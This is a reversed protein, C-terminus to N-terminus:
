LDRGARKHVWWLYSRAGITMFPEPYLRRPPKCALLADIMPNGSGAAHEAILMGSLTGKVIGLGNQCVASYLGQEIEGFGPVSNLSLCLEGGWRFEMGVGDLMPFRARFSKDHRRGIAKIENESTRSNPNYTFTNRIVIRGERIRRVSTGMPDAPVLAWEPAGGLTAREGAGLERTMSAFTFVHMLRRRYFGFSEAHGNVTLIVRPSRVSGNRTEVRHGSGTEIRTVPSNEFIDVKDALGGALGRVYAAPQIIAAGPAHMGGVYYDTGTLAQMDRADLMTYPEGLADLHSAFGTLATMGSDGAAGHYKGCDSFVNELGYEDVAQRAFEIAARNLAIEQLDHERGGAYSESSLDHPLDIMFGSNRGAAGWGVRQADILVIREGARLQVLRRAASLGAFGAGIIVWDASIEDDLVRAPGPPPLLEYWGSRSFDDPWGTAQYTAM